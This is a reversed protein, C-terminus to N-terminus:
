PSPSSAPPKERPTPAPSPAPANSPAPSPATAHSGGVQGFKPLDAQRAPLPSAPQATALLLGFAALATVAAALRAPVPLGGGPPREGTNQASRLYARRFDNLKIGAAGLSAWPASAYFAAQYLLLLSLVVTAPSFASIPILVAGALSVAALGTEVKSSSLARLIGSSGEGEKPTRLFAAQPRVLGRLCALTVVWSLAFWVGLAGLADRWGCGTTRRLGWLARLLGTALFILPVAIVAGVLQRVPLRHHLALFAATAVLMLTFALTLVEGFWQVCGLLYHIRQATTLRLRHRGWPLMERWHLRLIQIGGLAWRFRQKKLGDFSLPMLGSGRAVPDYVGNYGRGLLRLSMESDETVCDQNWGGVEELASRRILGMTGAFIIADRHARSPMSVDFFYRYSYFLSRLYGDDEWDRYNQPSQVFAVKPDAFYGALEELFGAEVVYDADVISIVEYEPPLRRTAENLAGAKFGPWDALHMFQFRSGLEGCLKELPKWVAEDPTNNDVVQVLLRPYDLEALSRLTKELVELPENYAPVQIAIAPRHQPDPRTRPRDRRGLVDLLEFAYSVSLSLAILELLFLLVSGIWAIPGTAQVTTLVAVYVLYLVTGAVLVVFLQVAPLSWRRLLLLRGALVLLLAAAPLLLAAVPDAAIVGVLWGAIALTLASLLVGVVAPVRVVGPIVVLLTSIGAAVAAFVVLEQLV